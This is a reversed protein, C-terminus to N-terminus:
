EKKVLMLRQTFLLSNAPYLKNENEVFFVLHLIFVTKFNSSMIVCMTDRFYVDKVIIFQLKKECLSFFGQQRTRRHIKLSM